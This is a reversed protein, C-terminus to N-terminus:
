RIMRKIRGLRLLTQPIDLIPPILRPLGLCQRSVLHGHVLIEVIFGVLVGVM